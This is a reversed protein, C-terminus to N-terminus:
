TEGLNMFAYKVDKARQRSVPVLSGNDMIMHTGHFSIVHNINVVFSAHSQIFFTGTLKEAEDKFAGRYEISGAGSVSLIINHKSSELSIIDRKKVNFYDWGKKVTFVENGSEIKKVAQKLKRTFEDADIPKKIFQFPQVDFLRGHYKTHSSVYILLASDHGYKERLLRGATIGDGGEMEIDMYILDFYRGRDLEACLKAGSTFAEIEYTGSHPSVPFVRSGMICQEIQGIVTIDDDCIAISIM